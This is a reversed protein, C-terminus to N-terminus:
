AYPMMGQVVFQEETQYIDLQGDIEVVRDRMNSLGFGLQFKETYHIPNIISFTLTHIASKGLTIQVVKSDSHRMVNTLAEQIVRYLIVGHENSLPITLVGEKLTFQIFLHNESELKRILQIVSSIGKSDSDRLTQVAQRTEELSTNAMEKLEVYHPNASQIYLMELKMILATLQHGVSDHIERAIRTREETRTLEDVAHHLRKMQRYDTQMHDLALTIEKNRMIKQQLVILIVVFLIGVLLLHIMKWGNPYVLLLALLFSFGLLSYFTKEPLRFVAMMLVLIFLLNTYLIDGVIMGHTFLVLMVGGYVYPPVKPHSLIFFLCLSVTLMFLSFTPESQREYIMFLWLSVFGILRLIFLYMCEEWGNFLM